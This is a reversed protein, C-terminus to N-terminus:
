LGSTDVNSIAVARQNHHIPVPVRGSIDLEGRVGFRKLELAGSRSDEDVNWRSTVDRNDIAHLLGDGGPPWNSGSTRIDL